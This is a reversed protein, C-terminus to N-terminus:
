FGPGGPGRRPGRERMQELKTQQEPTLISKMEDFAAQHAARLKKEAAHLSIAAQGVTTADPSDAELTKEYADHASRVADMLPKLTERQKARMAQLQTKQDDSLGLAEALHGGGPGFGRGWEHGGPPAGAADGGPGQARALGAWGCLALAAAAATSTMVRKTSM